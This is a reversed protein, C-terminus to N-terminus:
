KNVTKRKFVLINGSGTMNSENSILLDGSPTFSLGEPQKYISPDLTYVENAHGAKDVIVLTKNVASVIFLENTVPNIAAASPKFKVKEVGLKEAIPTVDIPSSSLGFASQLRDFVWIGVSKKKDTECDKCIMNITGYSKDYYMAEFENKGEPFKFEEVDMSDASYFRVSTIDGKSAMIYFVSDVLLLDEYDSNKAFKWKEVTQSKLHVKYLWGGEDSIAFVSTDKPYFVIGSIEDLQATMNITYPHNLDYEKPTTYGAVESAGCGTLLLSCSYVFACFILTSRFYIKMSLLKQIKM